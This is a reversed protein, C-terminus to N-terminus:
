AQLMRTSFPKSPPSSNAHLDVSVVAYVLDGTTSPAVYDAV